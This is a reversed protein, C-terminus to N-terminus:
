VMRRRKAPSVVYRPRHPKLMAIEEETYPEYLAFGYEKMSKM